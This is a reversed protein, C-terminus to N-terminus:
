QRQLIPDPVNVSSKEWFNKWWDSHEAFAASFDTNKENALVEEATARKEWDPFSSSISWAGVLGNDTATDTPANTTANTAMDPTNGTAADVVHVQYKFGGWGEQEYTRGNENRVVKGESYQLRRLDQGTVPDGDGSDNDKNYAPPILKYNLPEKLGEFRFRGV